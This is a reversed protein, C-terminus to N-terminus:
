EAKIQASRLYDALQQPDALQKLLRIGDATSRVDLFMNEGYDRAPRCTKVRLRLVRKAIGVDHFIPGTTQGGRYKANLGISVSGQDDQIWAGGRLRNSNFRIQVTLDHGLWEKLAEAHRMVARDLAKTAGEYGGGPLPGPWGSVPIGTFRTIM